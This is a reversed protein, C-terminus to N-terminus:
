VTFVGTIKRRINSPDLVWITFSVARGSPTASLLARASQINNGIGKKSGM